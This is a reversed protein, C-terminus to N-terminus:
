KKYGVFQKTTPNFLAIRGDSTMREVTGGIAQSPQTPPLGYSKKLGNLAMLNSDELAKYKPDVRMKNLFATPDDVAIGKVFNAEAERFVGQGNAARYRDQAAKALASGYAIDEPNLSGGHQQAWTRLQHVQDQLSQRASLEERVKDPVPITALGVNPVFRGEIEKAMAPNKVRLYSILGEPSGGKVLGSYLAADQNLQAKKLELESNALGFRQQAEVSGMQAALMQGKAQAATLLQAQTAARAARVDGLQRLNESFLTQKKGLDMEQDHIDRDISKQIVDMAMNSKGTLGSGIGSLGVSIAALIKNGTGMNNFLRNHDIKNDLIGQFLQQNKTQLDKEIPAYHAENQELNTQLQQANNAMQGYIGAAQNAGQSLINQQAGLNQQQAALSQSMLDQQPQSPTPPQEPVSAPSPGQTVQSPVDRLPLGLKSAEQNYQVDEATKRAQDQQQLAQSYAESRKEQLVKNQALREAEDPTRNSSENLYFDKYQDIKNQVESPASSAANIAEEPSEEEPMESANPIEEPGSLAQTIGGSAMKVPELSKIRKHVEPGVANKAVSFKSGDPHEVHFMQDDEGAFKYSM